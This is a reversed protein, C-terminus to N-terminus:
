LLGVKTGNRSCLTLTLGEEWPGPDRSELVSYKQALRVTVYGAETLAYQQGVCIRPGGNFPLYEWGPRIDAWREPRFENADPGFFEERRHMAYVHYAVTCGKPVFVPSKGDPGGGVPLITDTNAFRANAPVVPHLRLSENLCFKLYKLNRLQEYSPARGELSAVEERLKNWIRPNKALMFFLNSLLSATTDRGALLVNMLEDRIRRRDGTQQALGHLFLYKRKEKAGHSDGATLAKEEDYRGRVRLASDVFQEVLNHCIRNCEEAKRDRRFHRLKGLRLNTAIAEQAYNFAGAFDQETSDRIGARRKKLSHVSHGFLFETASDITFEFFLEQLDVTGGDTPILPLLDDMLEEFIDLHAVQDKVFNPRVMARSQAWHEGDTTFIGHGLLPGAANIRGALGYDKFRLSLITKVNEPECTIIIPTTLRRGQYTNGNEKFREVIRELLKHKRAYTLQEHINDLAFFPDKRPYTPPPQCNNAKAIRRQTWKRQLYTATYWLLLVASALAVVPYHSKGPDM